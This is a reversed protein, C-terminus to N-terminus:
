DYVITNGPILQTCGDGGLPLYGTYPPLQCPSTVRYYIGPTFTISMEECDSRRTQPRTFGISLAICMLILTLPIRKGYLHKEIAALVQTFLYKLLMKPAGSPSDSVNCM